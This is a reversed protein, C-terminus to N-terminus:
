FNKLYKKKYFLKNKNKALTLEILKNILSSFNVGSAEWLKSYMSNETFGPITNIENLIIEEKKTIFFDIRAMISCELMLFVKKAIQRINNSLNNSINAPIILKSDKIYKAQFDYFKNKHQIEGCISTVPQENGLIGVEIERGSILPEILIKNDYFFSNKISKKLEFFNSALNVGISSGQTAPKVICPFGIKKIIKSYKIKKYKKQNKITISPTVLINFTKLIRKTMDKDMCISSGLVGSGVYPVNLVNYFGQFSGNEGKEGHLVSFILDVQLTKKNSLNLFKFKWKGPIVAIYGTAPGLQIRNMDNPYLVYKKHTRIGLKGNKEVGILILHYKNKDISQIVNISSKLSIQHESSEGGFFIAINIKM